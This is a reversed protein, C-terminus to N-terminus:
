TFCMPRARAASVPSRTWRTRPRLASRRAWRRAAAGRGPGAAARQGVPNGILATIGRGIAAPTNPMTRIVPTKAGWTGRRFLRDAIGAAVRFSFRAAKAWRAAVRPLAEAMMQPKVAVLVIAPSEPLPMNIQVDQARVWDSPKPDYLWVSAPPLGKDLWGALMASGMKGCGLLVLGQAAVQEMNMIQGKGQPDPCLNVRPRLGRCHRGADCRDPPRDGWVVLQIAPYYREASM